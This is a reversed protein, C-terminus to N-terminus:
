YVHVKSMLPAKTPFAPRRILLKFSKGNILRYTEFDDFDTTAILM